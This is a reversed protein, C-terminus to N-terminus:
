PTSFRREAVASGLHSNTAPRSAAARTTTASCDTIMPTTAANRPQDGVKEPRAEAIKSSTSPV